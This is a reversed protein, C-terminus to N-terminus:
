SCTAKTESHTWLYSFEEILSVKGVSNKNKMCMSQPNLMTRVIISLKKLKKKQEVGDLDFPVDNSKSM